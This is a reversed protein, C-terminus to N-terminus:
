RSSELPTQERPLVVLFESGSEGPRNLEIQGGHGEVLKKTLALGMGAGEEKSSYFPSWIREIQESPIGPGNDRVRIWVESDALDHGAQLVVKPYPVAAVADFANALLHLVVRRLKERDAWLVGPSDVEVRLDIGEADVRDSLAGLASEIVEELSVENFAFEPERAFRLLHSISKEVRNLEDLAINAHEVNEHSAPDEGMQQVLEKAATIPNQIENAVGAALDEIHRSHEGEVQLRHARVESSLRHGVERDIWRQRLEPEIFVRSVKRLVACGWFLGVWFAAGRAVVSLLLMVLLFVGVEGLVKVKRDARQEAEEYPTRTRKRGRSVDRTDAPVGRRSRRRAHRRGRRSDM